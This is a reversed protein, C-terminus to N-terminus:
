RLMRKPPLTTYLRRGTFCSGHNDIFLPEEALRLDRLRVTDVWAM